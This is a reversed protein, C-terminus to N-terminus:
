QRGQQRHVREGRYRCQGTRPLHRDPRHQGRGADCWGPTTISVGLTAPEGAVALIRSATTNGAPDAITIVLDDDATAAVQASYSGDGQVTAQVITGTWSNLLTVTDGATATGATSIVTVLGGSPAGVTIQGTDPNAPPQSDLTFTVSTNSSQGFGDTAVIQVTHPGDALGALSHAFSNDPFLTATEGAVTVTAPEDRQGAIVAYNVQADPAPQTLTIVPPANDLLVSVTNSQLGEIAGNMARVYILNTGTSPLTTQLSFAGTTPDATTTEAALGNVYLQITRGPQATGTIVCDPQSTPSACGTLAPATPVTISLLAPQPPDFDVVPSDAPNDSQDYIM